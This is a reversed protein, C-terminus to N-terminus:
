KGPVMDAVDCWGRFKVTGAVPAKSTSSSSAPQQAGEANETPMAESEEGEANSNENDVAQAADSKKSKRPKKAKKGKEKPQVEKVNLLSEGALLQELEEPSRKFDSSFPVSYAICALYLLREEEELWKGAILNDKCNASIRWRSMCQKASRGPLYDSVLQWNGAGHEEVAEKLKLDEEVTFDVFSSSLNKNLDRQYHRLCEFPTRSTGLEEAINCWHHEDYIDVLELLKTDEETSWNSKNISPDIVNRFQILCEMPLIKKGVARAVNDWDIQANETQYKSVENLLTDNELKTWTRATLKNSEYSFCKGPYHYTQETRKAYDFTFYRSYAKSTM